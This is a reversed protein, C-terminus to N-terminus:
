QNLLGRGTKRIKKEGQLDTVLKDLIGNIFLKSKVSSFSKAMEIYENLTVKIPINPMHMLETLAMKLIIVDTLAIRDLEWNRTRSSILPEYEGSHLITKRFLARTFKRDDEPNDEEDRTFLSMIHSAPGFDEPIAKLTKLVFSAAWDFDDMWFINREECYSQLEASRAIYRKFIRVLFEKDESWSNNGSELYDKHERSERIRVSVKRMMEQDESWDFKYRGIRQNLERNQQLCLIVRNELLKLSPDLEDPTPLFKHKADEMRRRYFAVVELIFSLHLYYLEETKEISHLLNKEAVEVRPEGGQFFAYLGQLVKVRYQRRGLM